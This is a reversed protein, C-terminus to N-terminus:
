RLTTYYLSNEESVDLAYNAENFHVKFRRKFLFHFQFSHVTLLEHLSRFKLLKMRYKKFCFSKKMLIESFSGAINKVWKLSLISIM